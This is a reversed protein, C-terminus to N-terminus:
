GNEAVLNDDVTVVSASAEPKRIMDTTNVAESAAAMEGTSATM